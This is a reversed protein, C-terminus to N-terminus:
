MPPAAFSVACASMNYPKMTPCFATTEMAGVLAVDDATCDVPMCAIESTSLVCPTEKGLINKCTYASGWVLDIDKFYVEGHQTKCSQIYDREWPSTNDCCQSRCIKGPTPSIRADHPVCKTLCDPGGPTHAAWMDWAQLMTTAM